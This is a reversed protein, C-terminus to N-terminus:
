VALEFQQFRTYNKVIRIENNSTSRLRKAAQLVDSLAKYGVFMDGYVYWNGSHKTEIFYETREWGNLQIVVREVGVEKNEIAKKDKSM